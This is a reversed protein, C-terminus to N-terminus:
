PPPSNDAPKVIRLVRIYGLFARAVQPTGLQESAIIRELEGNLQGRVYEHFNFRMPFSAILGVIGRAWGYDTIVLRGGPALVRWMERVAERKVESPLHHFFFSSTVAHAVGDAMPLAEAVGLEFRAMSGVQYARRRAIEIMGPTADVGIAAGPGTPRDSVVRAALMALEGAGCGVDIIRQGPQLDAADLTAQLIAQRRGGSLLNEMMDVLHVRGDVRLGRTRPGSIAEPKSSGDRSLGGGTDVVGGHPWLLIAGVSLLLMLAALAGVLDIPDSLGHERLEALGFAVLGFALFAMCARRLSEEGASSADFSGGAGLAVGSTTADSRTASLPAPAFQRAVAIASYAALLASLFAAIPTGLQIIPHAISEAPETLDTLDILGVALGAVSAGFLGYRVNRGNLRWMLWQRIDRGNGSTQKAVDLRRPQAIGHRAFESGVQGTLALWCMRLDAIAGWFANVRILPQNHEVFWHTALAIAYCVAIGLVFILPQRAAIAEIAAMIGVATAFYHLGRTGPLRHARMYLPWFEKFTM